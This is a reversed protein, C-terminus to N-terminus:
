LTWEHREGVEGANIGAEKLYELRMCVKRNRFVVLQEGRGAGLGKDKIVNEQFSKRCVKM